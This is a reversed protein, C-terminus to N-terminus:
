LGAVHSAIDSIEVSISNFEGAAYTKLGSKVGAPLSGWDSYYVTIKTNLASVRTAADNIWLFLNGNFEPPIPM